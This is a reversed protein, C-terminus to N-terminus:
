RNRWGPVVQKIEWMMRDLALDMGPARTNALAAWCFNDYSRVLITTTGPLSGGHWWNPEANVNWGRAYNPSAKGPTTMLRISEPQLLGPTTKFGDVHNAFLVLDSASGLWGGHADMRRVNPRYPDAGAQSYYTVEGTAKEARTNGGIRMDRIGCPLLVNKRIWTAYSEGTVKEIVRGLVCYGFNSYAYKEGPASTLADEKLMRTILEAHNAKPWRFMPDNGDNTWGGSTHDLLNDVTIKQARESIDRGFDFGLISGPGFVRSELQLRGQERLLLIGAATIPKSISAIRFLHDPTAREGTKSDAVGFAERYVFRGRRAIALSLGPVHYTEMFRGVIGNITKQEAETPLYGSDTELPLSPAGPAATAWALAIGLLAKAILRPSM